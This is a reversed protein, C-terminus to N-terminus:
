WWFSYLYYIGTPIHLFPFGQVTNPPIYIWTSFITLFNQLFSSSSSVVHDLLEVGPYINLFFVSIQFSVHVGISVAAGSLIALIQFCGLHGDVSSHIFFIHNVYLWKFTAWITFFRGAICSVWTWGRARSSGRSFPIAAWELIRAQLIWICHLVVWGSFFFFSQFKAMQVVRISKSCMISRSILWISFSLYQLIDSTHTYFTCGVLSHLLFAASECLCLVFM